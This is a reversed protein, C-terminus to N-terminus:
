NVFNTVMGGGRLFWRDYGCSIDDLFLQAQTPVIIAVM